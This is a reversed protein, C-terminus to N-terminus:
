DMTIIVFRSHDVRFQERVIAYNVLDLSFLHTDKVFLMGTRELVRRSAINKPMARGLIRELGLYEFGFQLSARTMETAIGRGWYVKALAYDVEVEGTEELYNLGGQGMFQGSTRGTVAWLGYGHRAWHEQVYKLARETRQHPPIDQKPLYRTVDPDAFISGAWDDLDATSFPRLLLRETEIAPRNM